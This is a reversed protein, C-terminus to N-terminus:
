FQGVARTNFQGEPEDSISDWTARQINNGGSAHKGRADLDRQLETEIKSYDSPTM